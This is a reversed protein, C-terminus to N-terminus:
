LKSHGHPVLSPVLLGVEKEWPGERGQSLGGACGLVPLIHVQVQADILQFHFSACLQLFLSRQRPGVPREPLMVFFGDGCMLCM